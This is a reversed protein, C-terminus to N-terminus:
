NLALVRQQPPYCLGTTCGQYHLMIHGGSTASAVPLSLTLQRRYIESKGFYEDEHPEGAPPQWHGLEVGQGDASLTHRYLYADPAITIDVRVANGDRRHSIVFAQEVPLVRNGPPPSPASWELVFPALMLLLGILAATLLAPKM